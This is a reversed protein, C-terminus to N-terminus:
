ETGREGRHWEESRLDTLTDILETVSFGFTNARDILDRCLRELQARRELVSADPSSLAIFTGGPRKVLIGLRELEDYARSVTGPHVGLDIALQRVTPLREGTEVTGSVVELWVRDAIQRYLPEESGKDLYLALREALGAREDAM